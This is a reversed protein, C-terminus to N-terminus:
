SYYFLIAFPKYVMTLEELETYFGKSRWGLWNAGRDELIIVGYERMRFGRLLIGNQRENWLITLWTWAFNTYDGYGRM